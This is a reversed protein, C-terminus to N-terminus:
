SSIGEIRGAHAAGGSSSIAVDLISSGQAYPCCKPNYLDQSTRVLPLRQFIALERAAFAAERLTAKM